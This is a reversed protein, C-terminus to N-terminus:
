IIIGPCLQAMVLETVKFAMVTMVRVKFKLDQWEYNTESESDVWQRYQGQVGIQDGDGSVGGGGAIGSGM